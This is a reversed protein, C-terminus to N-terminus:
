QLSVGLVTKILKKFGEWDDNKLCKEMKAIDSDRAERYFQVMEAFGLNGPYSLENMQNLINSARSM